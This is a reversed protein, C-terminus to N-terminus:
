SEFSSVELRGYVKEKKFMDKGAGGSVRGQRVTANKIRFSDDQDNLNVILRGSYNTNYSFFTEKGNRMDVDANAFSNQILEVDTQSGGGGFMYLNTSRGRSLGVDNSLHVDNIGSGNLYLNLRNSRNGSVNMATEQHLVSHHYSWVSLTTAQNAGVVLTNDLTESTGVSISNAPGDFGQGQSISLDSLYGFRPDSFFSAFEVIFSDVQQIAAGISLTEASLDRATVRTAGLISLEDEVSVNDLEIESFYPGYEQTREIRLNDLVIDALEVRDPKAGSTGLDITLKVPIESSSGFNNIFFHDSGGHMRVVIEETQGLNIGTVQNSNVIMWASNNSIWFEFEDDRNTGDFVEQQALSIKGLAIAFVFCALGLLKWLNSLIM